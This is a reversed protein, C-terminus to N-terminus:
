LAACRECDVISLGAREKAYQQAHQDSVQDLPAKAVTSDTLGKAGDVYYRLTSPKDTHKTKAYPLFDKKLFEALTPTPKKERIGVEGLALKTRHASEMQRAVKDSGQRTSERILKGQWMFKYWYVGCTGRKSRLTELIRRSNSSRRFYAFFSCGNSPRSYAWSHLRTGHKQAHIIWRFLFL